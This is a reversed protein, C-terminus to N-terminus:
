KAAGRKRLETRIEKLNKENQQQLKFLLDTPFVSMPIPQQRDKM